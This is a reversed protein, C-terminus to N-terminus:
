EDRDGRAIGLIRLRLDTIIMWEHDDKLLPLYEKGTPFQLRKMPNTHIEEM